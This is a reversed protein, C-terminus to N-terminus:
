SKESILDDEKDPLSRNIQRQELMVLGRAFWGIVAGTSLWILFNILNM